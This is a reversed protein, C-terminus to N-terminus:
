DVPTKHVEDGVASVARAIKFLAHGLDEDSELDNAVLALPHLEDSLDHLRDCIALTDLEVPRKMTGILTM